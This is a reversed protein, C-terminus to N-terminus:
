VRGWVPDDRAVCISSVKGATAARIAMLRTYVNGKLINWASPATQNDFLVRTALADLEVQLKEPHKGAVDLVRERSGSRAHDRTTLPLLRLGYSDSVVLRWDNLDGRTKVWWLLRQLPDGMQESANVASQELVDRLTRDALAEMPVAWETPLWGNFGHRTPNLGVLKKLWRKLPRHRCDEIREFYKRMNGSKWTADDTLKAIQDWDENHPYVLILANHATCGGLTGARPYLVGGWESTFKPDRTQREDSAYHRVFFDWKM